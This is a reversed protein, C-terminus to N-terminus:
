MVTLEVFFVDVFIFGDFFLEAIKIFGEASLLEDDREIKRTMSKTQKMSPMTPDTKNKM